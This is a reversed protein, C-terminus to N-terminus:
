AFAAARFVDPGGRLAPVVGQLLSAPAQDGGSHQGRLGALRGACVQVDRQGLQAVHGRAECASAAQAAARADWGPHSVPGAASAAPQSAVSAGTTVPHM